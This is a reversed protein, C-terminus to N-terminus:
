RELIEFHVTPTTVVHVRDIGCNYTVRERFKGPGPAVGWPVPVTYGLSFESVPAFGTVGEMPWIMGIGDIITYLSEVPCDRNKTSRFRIHLDDGPYVAEEQAWIDHVRLPPGQFIYWWSGVLVIGWFALFTALMFLRLLAVNLSGM